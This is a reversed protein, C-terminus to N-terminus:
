EKEKHGLLDSFHFESHKQKAPKLSSKSEQQVPQPKVPKDYSEDIQWGCGELEAVQAQGYAILYGHVPHKLRVAM